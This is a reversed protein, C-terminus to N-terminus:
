GAILKEISSKWREPEQVSWAMENKKGDQAFHVCLLPFIVTKNNFVRPLSIEQITKIPIVYEKQPLARVFYLEDKTLVLAGKGRVQKSGKAKEGFFTAKTTVGLIDEKKFRKTVLKELKKNILSVLFILFVLLLFVGFIITLTTVQASTM